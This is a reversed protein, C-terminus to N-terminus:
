SPVALAHVAPVVLLVLVPDLRLVIHVVVLPLSHGISLRYIIENEM